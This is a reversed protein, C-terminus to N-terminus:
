VPSRHNSAPIWSATLRVFVAGYTLHALLGHIVALMPQPAKSTFGLGAM